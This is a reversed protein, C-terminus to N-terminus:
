GDCGGDHGEASDTHQESRRSDAAEDPAGGTIKAARANLRREIRRMAAELKVSHEDLWDMDPDAWDRDIWQRILAAAVEAAQRDYERRGMEVAKTRSIVRRAEQARESM